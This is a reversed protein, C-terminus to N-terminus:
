RQAEDGAAEGDAGAAQSAAEPATGEGTAHAPAEDEIVPVPVCEDVQGIGVWYSLVAGFERLNDMSRAGADSLWANLRDAVSQPEPRKEEAETADITILIEDDPGVGFRRKAEVDRGQATRAYQVERQLADVRESSADIRRQQELARCSSCWGDSIVLAARPGWALLAFALGTLLLLRRRKSRRIIESQRLDDDM